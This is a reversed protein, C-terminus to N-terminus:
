DFVEPLHKQVTMAPEELAVVIRCHGASAGQHSSVRSSCMCSQAPQGDTKVPYKAEQQRNSM